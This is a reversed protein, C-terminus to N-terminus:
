PLVAYTLVLKPNRQATNGNLTAKSYLYNQLYYYVAGSYYDSTQYIPTVYTQLYSSEQNGKLVKQLYSSIDLSYYRLSRNIYGNNTTFSVDEVPEYTIRGSNARRTSIFLQSPFYNLEKYDSPYEFPLRVEAKAIILKSLDINNYAAWGELNSKVQAFDIYPKVGALGEVFLKNGPNPHEITASSHNYLNLNPGNENVFYAITSDKDIGESAVKHRYTLLFYINGPAILNIRGGAQNGPKPDATLYLGKFKKYFLETSDMEEQSAEVLKQAFTQSVEIVLSDGGFFINGANDIRAPSIDNQKVSNNYIVTSDIDKLLEYLKFNQPIFEDNEDFFTKNDISIYMKLAKAVPNEGFNHKSLSPAIRFAASTTVLGMDPDNYAGVSLYGIYSTQLSDTVKAHVPLDFTTSTVNLINDGPLLSSGTTKDTEICSHSLLTAVLLAAASSLINKKIM